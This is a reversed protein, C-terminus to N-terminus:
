LVYGDTPSQLQIMPEGELVLLLSPWMRRTVRLWELEDAFLTALEREKGEPHAAIAEYRRRFADADRQEAPSFSFDHKEPWGMHNNEATAILDRTLRLRKDPAAFELIDAYRNERYARKLDRARDLISVRDLDFPTETPRGCPVSAVYAILVGIFFIRRM